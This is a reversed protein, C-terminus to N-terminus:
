NGASKNLANVFVEAANFDGWSISCIKVGTGDQIYTDTLYPGDIDVVKWPLPFKRFNRIVSALEPM